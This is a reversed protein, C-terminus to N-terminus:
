FLGLMDMRIGAENTAVDLHKSNSGTCDSSWSAARISTPESSWSHIETTNSPWVSSPINVLCLVVWSNSHLFPILCPWVMDFWNPPQFLWFPIDIATWTLWKSQSYLPDNTLPSDRIITNKTLGSSDWLCCRKKRLTCETRNMSANNIVWKSSYPHWKLNCQRTAVMSFVTSAEGHLRLLITCVQMFSWLRGPECYSGRRLNLHAHFKHWM